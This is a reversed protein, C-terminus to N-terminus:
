NCIRNSQRPKPAPPEGAQLLITLPRAALVWVCFDGAAVDKFSMAAPSAPINHRPPVAAVIKKPHKLGLHLTTYHLTTYHLTTYHLTTHLYRAMITFNKM